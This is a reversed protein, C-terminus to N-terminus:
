LSHARYHSDSRPYVPPVIRAVPATKWNPTVLTAEFATTYDPTGNIYLEGGNGIFGIYGRRRADAPGYEIYDNVEYPRAVQARAAKREPSLPRMIFVTGNPDTIRLQSMPMPEAFLSLLGPLSFAQWGTPGPWNMDPSDAFKGQVQWVQAM